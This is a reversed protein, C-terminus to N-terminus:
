RQIEALEHSIKQGPRPIILQTLPTAQELNDVIKRAVEDANMFQSFTTPEANDFLESKFGGPYVGIVSVPTNKLEDRLGNTLGRLAYKSAIYPLGSSGTMGDFATISCINVITGSQQKKMARLAVRAGHITGFVNVQFLKQIKEMDANELPEQPLWTGANNIWVDITGFKQITKDAVEQVQAEDTVDCLFASIDLEEATSKISASDKSCIVVTAQKEKFIKAMARGLGKSGGTILVVKKSLNM